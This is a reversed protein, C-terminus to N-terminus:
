VLEQFFDKKIQRKQVGMKQLIQEIAIVMNHSGSLYFTREKYDLVTKTIM